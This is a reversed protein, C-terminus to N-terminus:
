VKSVPYGDCDQSSKIARIERQSELKIQKLREQYQNEDDQQKRMDDAKAKLRQLKVATRKNNHKAKQKSTKSASPRPTDVHVKKKVRLNHMSTKISTITSWLKVDNTNEDLFDQVFDKTKKIDDVTVESAPVGHQFLGHCNIKRLVGFVIPNHVHQVDRLFVYIPGSPVVKHSLASKASWGLAACLVVQYKKDFLKWVVGTAALRMGDDVGAVHLLAPYTTLGHQYLKPRRTKPRLQARDARKYLVLSDLYEDHGLLTNDRDVIPVQPSPYPLTDLSHQSDQLSQQSDQLSQQSPLGVTQWKQITM